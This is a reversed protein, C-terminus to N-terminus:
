SERKDIWIYADQWTYLGTAVCTRSNDPWVRWVSFGNGMSEIIYGRYEKGM